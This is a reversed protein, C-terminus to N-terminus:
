LVPVSRTSRGVPTLGSPTATTSASRDSTFADKAFCQQAWHLGSTHAVLFVAPEIRGDISVVDRARRYELEHATLSDDLPGSRGDAVLTLRRHPAWSQRRTDSPPSSVPEPHRISDAVRLRPQNRRPGRSPDEKGQTRPTRARRDRPQGVACRVRPEQGVGGLDIHHHGSRRQGPRDNQASRRRLGARIRGLGGMDETRTM